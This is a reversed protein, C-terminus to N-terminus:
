AVIADDVLEFSDSATHNTAIMLIVVISDSSKNDGVHDHRKNDENLRHFHITRFFDILVEWLNVEWSIFEM